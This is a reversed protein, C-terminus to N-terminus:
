DDVLEGELIKGKVKEETKEVMKKDELYKWVLSTIFVLLDDSYGLFPVIDPIIDLPSLLYLIAVIIKWNKKIFQKIKQPFLVSKLRHVHMNRKRQFSSKDSKLGHLKMDKKQM